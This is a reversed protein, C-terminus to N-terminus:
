NCRSTISFSVQKAQGSGFGITSMNQFASSSRSTLVGLQINNSNSQRIAECLNSSIYFSLPYDYCQFQKLCTLFPISSVILLKLIFSSELVCNIFWLIRSLTCGIWCMAILMLLSHILQSEMEITPRQFVNVFLYM